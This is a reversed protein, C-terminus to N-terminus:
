ESPPSQPQQAQLSCSLKGDSESEKCTGSLTGRPTQLGCSDGANMGLCAEELKVLIDTRNFGQGSGNRNFDRPGTQNGFPPGMGHGDAGQGAMDNTGSNGGDKGYDGKEDQMFMSCGSITLVIILCSIFVM